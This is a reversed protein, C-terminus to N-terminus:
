KDSKNNVIKSEKKVKAKEEKKDATKEETDTEFLAIKQGKKLTVIIKKQNNRKGIKGKVRKIKGDINQSNIKEVKVKFMNEIYERAAIKDTKYDAIFSFKGDSSATFSKESILPKKIIQKM